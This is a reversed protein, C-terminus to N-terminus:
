YYTVLCIQFQRSQGYLNAKDVIVTCIRITHDLADEVSDYRKDMEPIPIRM